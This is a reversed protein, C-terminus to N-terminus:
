RGHCPEAPKCVHQELCRDFCCKDNFNPCSYDHTCTVPPGIRPCHPRVRPCCGPRVPRFTTTTSIIPHECCYFQHEPTQCWYRCSNSSVQPQVIIVGSTPTGVHNPRSGTAVTLIGQFVGAATKRAQSPGNRNGFHIRANVSEEAVRGPILVALAALWIIAMM